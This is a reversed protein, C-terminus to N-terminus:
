TKTAQLMEQLQKTRQKEFVLQEGISKVQEYSNHLQKRLSDSDMTNKSQM